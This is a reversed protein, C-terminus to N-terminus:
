VERVDSFNKRSGVNGRIDRDSITAIGDEGDGLLRPTARSTERWQKTRMPKWM